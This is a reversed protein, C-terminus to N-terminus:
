VIDGGLQTIRMNAIVLKYKQIEADKISIDLIHENEKKLHENEKKLIINENEIDKYKLKFENREKEIAIDLGSKFSEFDSGYKKSINEMINKINEKQSNNLCILEQHSKFKGDNFKYSFCSISNRLSAEAKSLEGQILCYNELIIKDGFFSIHEKFRRGLDKSFGYKYIDVDDENKLGTNLLYLCKINGSCKSIVRALSELELNMVNSVADMKQKEDGVITAFVINDLWDAFDNARGIRSNRIVKM